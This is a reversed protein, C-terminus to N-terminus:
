GLKNSSLLVKVMCDKNLHQRWQKPYLLYKMYTFCFPCLTTDGYSHLKSKNMKYNIMVCVRNRSNESIYAYQPSHCLRILRYTQELQVVDAFSVTVFKEDHSILHQTQLRHQCKLASECKQWIHLRFELMKCSM